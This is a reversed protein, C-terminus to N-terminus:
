FNILREPVIIMDDPQLVPDKELHGKNIIEDLDVVMTTTDGGAGKRVIKVKRGNAFDALGGAQLVAKSLTFTEGPPISVPGAGRVAGTMYVTGRSRVSAVDLAIIVTAHFFYQQELLGKIAHALQRCTKGEAAVRGILPLEVEGSDVVVLSVPSQREEVVRYSLRDAVQLPRSDDLAAMSNTMSAASGAAQPARVVPEVEPAPPM